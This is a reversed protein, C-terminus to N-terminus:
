APHVHRVIEDGCVLDRSFNVPNPHTPIRDHILQMSQLGANRVHTGFLGRLFQRGQEVHMQHQQFILLQDTTDLM